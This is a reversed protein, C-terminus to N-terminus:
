VLLRNRHTRYRHCLCCVLECKEIEEWLKKRSGYKVICAIDFKKSHLHDFEMVYYPFCKGCDKCPNAEKYQRLEDLLQNRNRTKSEFYKEKNKLYHVKNYNARCVKCHSQLGDKKSKAKAFAEFSKEKGCSTCTRM